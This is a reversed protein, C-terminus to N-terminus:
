QADLIVVKDVSIFVVGENVLEALDEFYRIDVLHIMDLTKTKGAANVHIMEPLAGEQAFPYVRVQKLAAVASGTAEKPMSFAHTNLVLSWKNASSCHLLGIRILELQRAVVRSSVGGCDENALLALMAAEHDAPKGQVQWTYSLGAESKSMTNKSVKLGNEQM